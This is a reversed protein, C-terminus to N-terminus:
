RGSERRMLVFACTMRAMAHRPHHSSLAIRCVLVQDEDGAVFAEAGLEAVRADFDKSALIRYARGEDTTDLAVLGEALMRATDSAPNALALTCLLVVLPQGKGMAEDRMREVATRFAESAMFAFVQHEDPTSM